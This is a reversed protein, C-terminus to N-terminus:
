ALLWAECGPYGAPLAAYSAEDFRANFCLGRPSLEALLAEAEDVDPFGVDLILPKHQQILHYMAVEYRRRQATPYPDVVVEIASLEPVQVLLPAVHLGPNHLHLVSFPCSRIIEIDYPLIQQEYIRPSLLTSHDAQTRLVPGPAWLSYGSMFGGAFPEIIKNGAEIIALNADTCVRMLRSCLEPEDLWALCAEKVGLVAAVLDCTGRLLTNATLPFRPAIRQQLLRLFERYVDLWPNHEFSAGRRIVDEVDGEYKESWIQGDTMKIPCGLMAELWPFKVPAHCIPMQDGLGAVIVFQGQAPLSSDVQAADWAEAEAVMAAPDVMDPTLRESRTLASGDAQRLHVPASPAFLGASRLLSDEGRQWFRTHKALLKKFREDQMAMRTPALAM